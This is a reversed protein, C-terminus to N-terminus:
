IVIVNKTLINQFTYYFINKLFINKNKKIKIKIKQYTYIFSYINVITDKIFLFYTDNFFLISINKLSVYSSRIWWVFFQYPPYSAWSNYKFISNESLLVIHSFPVLIFLLLRSYKFLFKLASNYIHYWKIIIFIYIIPLKINNINVNDTNIYILTILWYIIIWKGDIRFIFM